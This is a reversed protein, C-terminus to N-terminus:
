KSLQQRLQAILNRLEQNKAAKKMLEQEQEYHSRAMNSCKAMLEEKKQQSAKLEDYQDSCATKLGAIEENLESIDAELEVNRAVLKQKQTVEAEMRQNLTDIKAKAEELEANAQKLQVEYSSVKQDTASMIMESKELTDKSRQVAKLLLRNDSVVKLYSEILEDRDMNKANIQAAEAVSKEDSLTASARAPSKARDIPSSARQIPSSAREPTPVRISDSSAFDEPIAAISPPTSARRPSRAPSNIVPTAEEEHYDSSYDSKYEDERTILNKKRIKRNRAPFPEAFEFNVIAGAEGLLRVVSGLKSVPADNITLVIDGCYISNCLDAESDKLVAVVVTGSFEIGLPVEHRHPLAIKKRKGFRRSICVDCAEWDCTKVCRFWFTVPNEDDGRCLKCFRKKSSADVVRLKHSHNPVRVELKSPLVSYDKRKVTDSRGVEGKPERSPSNHVPLGDTSFNSICEYILDKALDFSEQEFENLLKSKLTLYSMANGTKGAHQSLIEMARCKILTRMLGDRDMGGSRLPQHSRFTLTMPGGGEQNIRQQAEEAGDTSIPVQWDGVSLLSDGLTFAGSNELEEARSGPLVGVVSVKGNDFDLQIGCKPNVWILYEGYNGSHNPEVVHEGPSPPRLQKSAMSDYGDEVM